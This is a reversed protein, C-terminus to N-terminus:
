RGRTVRLAEALDKLALQRKIEEEYEDSLATRIGHKKANMLYTIGDRSDDLQRASEIALRALTAPSLDKINAGIQTYLVADVGNFSELRKIQVTNTDPNPRPRYLKGGGVENIERRYLRHTADDEAADLLLIVAQVRAGGTEVPVLTPGGARKTSTRAFEVAFPTEIGTKTGTMVARIEDGPDAILSGYALIGVSPKKGQVTM